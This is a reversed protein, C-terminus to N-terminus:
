SDPITAFPLSGRHVRLCRESLDVVRDALQRGPTQLRVREFEQALARIDLAVCHHAERQELEIFM